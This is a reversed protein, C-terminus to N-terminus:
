TTHWIAQQNPIMWHLPSITKRMKAAQGIESGVEGSALSHRSQILVVIGAATLAKMIKKKYDSGGYIERTCIWCPIGYPSRLTEEVQFAQSEDKFSFSIFVEKREQQEM